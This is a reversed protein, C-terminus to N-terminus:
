EWCGNFMFCKSPDRWRDGGVRLEMRAESNSAKTSHRSYNTQKYHVYRLIELSIRYMIWKKGTNLLKDDTQVKLKNHSPCVKRQLLQNKGLDEYLQQNHCYAALAGTTGSSVDTRVAKWEWALGGPTSARRSSSHQNGLAVSLVNTSFSTWSCPEWELNWFGRCSFSLASKQM